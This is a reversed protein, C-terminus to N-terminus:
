GRGESLIQDWEYWSWRLQKNFICAEAGKVLGVSEYGGSTTDQFICKKTGSKTTPLHMSTQADHEM